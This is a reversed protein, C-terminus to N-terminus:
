SEVEVIHITVILDTFIIQKWNDLVTCVLDENRTNLLVDFVDFPIEFVLFVEEMIRIVWILIHVELLRILNFINFFKQFLLFLYVDYVLVKELYEQSLLIHLVVILSLLVIQKVSNVVWKIHDMAISHLIHNMSM